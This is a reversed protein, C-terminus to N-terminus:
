GLLSLLDSPHALVTDAAAPRVRPNWGALAFAVGAEAACARDHDTDGIFIAGGADLDLAELLPDLRKPGGFDESFMAVEPQWGLREVEARGSSSHKNSCLAWRGLEALVEEVGPFPVAADHDYAQLYAEPSLGLRACEDALVHGFTVSERPVGLAVFAGALAADSDLLTGDLDFIPVLM